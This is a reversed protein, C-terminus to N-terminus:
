VELPIMAIPHPHIARLHALRFRRNMRVVKIIGATLADLLQYTVLATLELDSNVNVAQEFVVSKDLHTCDLLVISQMHHIVLFPIIVDANAIWEWIIWGRCHLEM